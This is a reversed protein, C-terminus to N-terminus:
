LSVAEKFQRMHGAPFILVMRLHQQTKVDLDLMSPAVTARM